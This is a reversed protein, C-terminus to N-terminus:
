SIFFSPFTFGPCIPKRILECTSKNMQVFKYYPAPDMSAVEVTVGVDFNPSGM